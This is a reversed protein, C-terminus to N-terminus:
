SDETLLAFTLSRSIYSVGSALLYAAGLLNAKASGVYDSL